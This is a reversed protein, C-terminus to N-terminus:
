PDLALRRARRALHIQRRPTRDTALRANSVMKLAMERSVGNPYLDMSDSMELEPPSAM